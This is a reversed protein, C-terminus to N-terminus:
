GSLESHRMVDVDIPIFPPIKKEMTFGPGSRFCYTGRRGSFKRIVDRIDETARKEEEESLIIRRARADVKEISEYYDVVLDIADIWKDMASLEDRWKKNKINRMNNTKLIADRSFFIRIDAGDENLSANYSLVSRMNQHIMANRAEILWRFGSSKTYFESLLERMEKRREDGLKTASHNLNDRYVQCSNAVSLIRNGFHENIPLGRESSETIRRCTVMKTIQEELDSSLDYITNHVFEAMIPRVFERLSNHSSTFREYDSESLDCIPRFLPEGPLEESDYDILLLGVNGVNDTSM